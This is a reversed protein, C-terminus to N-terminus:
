AGDRGGFTYLSRFFDQLYRFIRLIINEDGEMEPAETPPPTAPVLVPAATPPPTTPPGPTPNPTPGQPASQVEPCDGNCCNTAQCTEDLAVNVTSWGQRIFTTIYDASCTTVPSKAAYYEDVIDCTAKAGDLYGSYATLTQINAYMFITGILITCGKLDSCGNLECQRVANVFALNLPGSTHHVDLNSKYECVSAISAGREAPDEMSRLKNGLMEGITFDPQDNSDDFMFELVTGVIDSFAENMGGSQYQYELGSSHKTVGHAIQISFSCSPILILLTDPIM